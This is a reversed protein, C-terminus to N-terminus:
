KLYLKKSYINVICKAVILVSSINSLPLNSSLNVICKAVILVKFIIFYLYIYYLNVICKAVILVLDDIKLNDLEGVNVICKAVILVNILFYYFSNPFSKCYVKSSNISVKETIKEGTNVLKCYM